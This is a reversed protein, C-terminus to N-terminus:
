LMQPSGYTIKDILQFLHFQWLVQKKEKVYVANLFLATIVMDHQGAQKKDLYVNFVSNTLHMSTLLYSPSHLRRAWPSQCQNQLSGLFHPCFCMKLWNIVCQNTLWKETVPGQFGMKSSAHYVTHGDTLQTMCFVNTLLM